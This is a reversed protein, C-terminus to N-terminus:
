KEKTKYETREKLRTLRDIEACILAGAKALERIRGDITYTEDPKFCEKDWPWFHMVEHRMPAPCAYVIAADSLQHATETDDHLFSYGEEYVQRMREKTVLLIGNKETNM